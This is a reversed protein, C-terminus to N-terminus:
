FSPTQLAELSTLVPDQQPLWAGPAPASAGHGKGWGWGTHRQGEQEQTVAESSLGIIWYTLEERLETLRELLDLRLLRNHPGGM